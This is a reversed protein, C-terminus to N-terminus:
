LTDNITTESITPLLLREYTVAVAQYLLKEMAQCKTCNAYYFLGGNPHHHFPGLIKFFVDIVSGLKLRASTESRVLCPAAAGTLQMVEHTVNNMEKIENILEGHRQEAGRETTRLNEAINVFHRSIYKRTTLFEEGVSKSVSPIPTPLYTPFEESTKTKKTEQPKSLAAPIAFKRKRQQIREDLCPTSVESIPSPLPTMALVKSLPPPSAMIEVEKQKPADKDDPQKERVCFREGEKIKRRDENPVPQDAINSYVAQAVSHTKM